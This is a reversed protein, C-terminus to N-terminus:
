ETQGVVDLWYGVSTVTPRQGEALAIPLTGLSDVGLTDCFCKFDTCPPAPVIVLLSVGNVQLASVGPTSTLLRSSARFIEERACFEMNRIYMDHLTDVAKQDDFCVALNHTDPNASCTPCPMQARTEQPREAATRAQDWENDAMISFFWKQLNLTPTCCDERNSSLRPRVNYDVLRHHM